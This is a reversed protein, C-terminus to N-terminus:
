PQEGAYTAGLAVLMGALLTRHCRSSDTCFCVLVASERALLREWADRHARYSERMELRYAAAYLAWAHDVILTGDRSADEGRSTGPLRGREDLLRVGLKLLALGPTLIAISPAFVLGDGKSTGRTVDFRDEGSYTVRATRVALSM